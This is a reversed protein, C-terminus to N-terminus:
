IKGLLELYSGLDGQDLYATFADTDPDSQWEYETMVAVQQAREAGYHKAIVALSMDTGASVGSSTFYKGDEVWRANKQWDVNESGGTIASFFLKNSTAKRGDLLGATALVGSGSCVSMVTDADHERRKLFALMAANESEAFTGYGGPLLVMDLAPADAFSYEAVTSPGQASRVPGTNEAVTVIKLEPGINGFMELPGYLDLLEFDEFLIAGLTKTQTM